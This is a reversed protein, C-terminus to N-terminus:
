HLPCLLTCSGFALVEMNNLSIQDGNRIEFSLKRLRGREKGRAGCVIPLSGAYLPRGFRVREISTILVGPIEEAVAASLFGMVMLGPAVIGTLGTEIARADSHHIPNHDGITIAFQRIEEALVRPFEKEWEWGNLKM